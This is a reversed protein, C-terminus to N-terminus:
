PDALQDLETTDLVRGYIRVEDIMGHFPYSIGNFPSAGIFLPTTQDKVPANVLLASDVKMGDEWFTVRTGAVLVAAMHVSDDNVPWHSVLEQSSSWGGSWSGLSLDGNIYPDTAPYTPNGDLLVRYNCSSGSSMERGLLAQHKTAGAPTKFWAVLTFTDLGLGRVSDVRGYSTTAGTLLLASGSVGATRSAGFLKMGHGNGSLDPVSDGTQDFSWYALLGRTPMTKVPGTSKDTGCGQLLLLATAPPLLKRIM